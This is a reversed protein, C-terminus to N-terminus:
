YSLLHFDYWIYKKNMDYLKTNM